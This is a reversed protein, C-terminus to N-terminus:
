RLGNRVPRGLGALHAELAVIAEDADRRVCADLIIEHERAQASRMDADLTPSRGRRSESRIDDILGLLCDNGCAAYLTRHFAADFNEIDDAEAAHLFEDAAHRARRLQADSLNPLSLRLASPELILRLGLLDSNAGPSAAAVALSRDARREVLGATRLRELVQRIPQRSVGFRAALAEQKLPAGPPLLGADIERRLAAEISNPDM